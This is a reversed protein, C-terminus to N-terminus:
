MELASIPGRKFVSLSLGNSLLLPQINFEQDTARDFTLVIQRGGVGVMLAASRRLAAFLAAEENSQICM